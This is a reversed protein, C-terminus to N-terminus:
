MLYVTTIIAEALANRWVVPNSLGGFVVTLVFSVWTMTLSIIVGIVMIATALKSIPELAGKVAKIVTL